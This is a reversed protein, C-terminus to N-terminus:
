KALSLKRKRIEDPDCTSIFDYEFVDQFFDHWFAMLGPKPQKGDIPPLHCIAVNTNGKYLSTAQTNVKFKDKYVNCTQLLNSHKPIQNQGDFWGCAASNQLMDSILILDGGPTWATANATLM